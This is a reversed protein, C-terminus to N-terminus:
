YMYAYEDVKRMKQKKKIWKRKDSAKAKEPNARKWEEVRHNNYARNKEYWLEFCEHHCPICINERRGNKRVLLKADQSTVGCKRCTRIKLIM